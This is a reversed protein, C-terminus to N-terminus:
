YCYVLQELTEKIYDREITMTDVEYEEFINMKIRQLALDVWPNESEFSFTKIFNQQVAGWSVTERRLEKEKYWNSPIGELTHIFYHTWERPPVL